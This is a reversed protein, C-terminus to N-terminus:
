LRHTALGRQGATILGQPLTVWSGPAPFRLPNVGTWYQLLYSKTYPEAWSIKL